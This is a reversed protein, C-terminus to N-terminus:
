IALFEATLNMAKVKLGPDIENPVDWGWGSDVSFRIAGGDYTYIPHEKVYDVVSKIMRFVADESETQKWATITISVPVGFSSFVPTYTIYPFTAGHPVAQAPYVPVDFGSFWSYLAQAQNM